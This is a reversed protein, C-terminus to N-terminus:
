LIDEWKYKEKGEEKEPLDFSISSKVCGSGCIEYDKEIECEVITIKAKRGYGRRIEFRKYMENLEELSKIEYFGDCRLGDEQCWMRYVKKM